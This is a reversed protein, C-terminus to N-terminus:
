RRKKRFANVRIFGGEDRISSIIKRLELAKVFEFNRETRELKQRMGDKVFQCYPEPASSLASRVEQDTLKGIFKYLIEIAVDSESCSELCFAVVERNFVDVDLECMAFYRSVETRAKVSAQLEDLGIWKIVRVKEREGAITSLLILKVEIDIPYKEVDRSFYDFHREILRSRLENSSSTSSFSNDNLAIKGIRALVISRDLPMGQPFNVYVYPSCACLKEYSSININYNTIIFYSLAKSEKDGGNPASPIKAVALEGVIDERSLMQNLQATDPSESSFYALINEWVVVVKGNFMFADWMVSPINDFSEFVYSQKLGFKIALSEDVEPHNIIEFISDESEESNEVIVLAVNELYANIREFVYGRLKQGGALRIATYNSTKSDILDNNSDVVDESLNSLVFSVNEVTLAYLSNEYVYRLLEDLRGIESINSVTISVLKLAEFGHTFFINESFVIAAQASLYSTLMGGENMNEAIHSPSVHAIINAVHRSAQDSTISAAGYGPWNESVTRTFGGVTRGSLWFAQFFEGSESFHKAIFEIVSHIKAENGVDATLLYDVLDVNLVYEAGFDEDRMESVVERPNDIQASPDVSRFDRITQIYNWDNRSMRGEHFISIYLHYTEDLYGNRVLYNLLRFDSVDSDNPVTDIEVGAVRLLDRLPKRAFNAKEEKLAEIDQNIQSRQYASKHKIRKYRVEFKSGPSAKEELERFSCGINVEAFGLHYGNILVQAQVRLSEEDFLRKFNDWELLMDFSLLESGSYVGKINHQVNAGCLQGWFIRVLDEQASCFESESSLILSRLMEVKVDVEAAAKAILKARQEVIKYLVGKGHHLAEFDKPYTNKYLIMALLKNLNPVGGVKGRYVLFENSINKILRYDDLYMSVESLFRSDVGENVGEPVICKTLMERSNSSNIVPIVPVIFDFFKARDKNFFVDDKIAYVFKLPQVGKLSHLIGKRRPRDNIIKNIERLKIFIEPSGFRDLDEFAVVDYNNEEFFYIIEDLHKNLISSEPAGDLEVEGNQLSFRKVSLSHSAKLSKAVLRAFYLFAFVCSIAWLPKLDNISVISLIDEREQYLYGCAVIWFAFGFANINLWRPKSIRKFRSFPLTSTDAGYLMQQLISREVKVTTDESTSVTDSDINLNPDSFTALSINLFRYPSVKEYTKIVSTKGSGYPGTLAFNRIATNRMAFDLANGYLGDLDAYDVPALDHFSEVIPEDRTLFWKARQFTKTGCVKALLSKFFILETMRSNNDLEM